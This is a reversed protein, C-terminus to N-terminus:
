SLPTAGFLNWVTEFGIHQPPDLQEYLEQFAQQDLNWLLAISAHRHRAVLKLSQGESTTVIINIAKPKYEEGLKWLLEYLWKVYHEVNGLGIARVVDDVAVVVYRGALRLRAAIKQLLAAINDALLRGLPQGALREAISSAAEVIARVSGSAMIARKVDDRELADLYIAVGEGGFREGFRGVFERLLRTKGCGEPGYIYLPVGRFRSSFRFLAELEEARDVFRVGPVEL